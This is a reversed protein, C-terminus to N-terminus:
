PHVNQSIRQGNSPSPPQWNVCVCPLLFVNSELMLRAFELIVRLNAFKLFSRYDEYFQAMTPPQEIEEDGTAQM